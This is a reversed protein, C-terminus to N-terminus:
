KMKRRFLGLGALGALGWIGLSGGSPSPVDITDSQFDKPPSQLIRVPVVIDRDRESESFRSTTTMVRLNFEDLGHWNGNPQYSLSGDSELVTTGKSKPTVAAQELRLCGVQWASGDPAKEEGLIAACDAAPLLEGDGLSNIINMKATEGYLLDQGVRSVSNPSIVLEFAGLDCHVNAGRNLGRIDTSECSAYGEVSGDSYMRGRNVIPSDNLTKYSSLLRPKFFGIFNDKPTTFPCLLGNAPPRDCTDQESSAGAFLKQSGLYSNLNGAEGAKCTSGVLNNLSLSRDNAAYACDQKNSTLISNSIHAKGAPAHFYVGQQNDVATINNLYVGDRLNILYGEKNKLFITNTLASVRSFTDTSTTNSDFAVESYILAGNTNTAKNERFISNTISFLPQAMFIVAGTKATNNKFISRNITLLSASTETSGAVVGENYIAGGENAVGNEMKVYTLTLSERNFIIGGRDECPSTAGCGELNLRLLGVGIRSVEALQDDVTFLRHNGKPKITANLLGAKNQDESFDKEATAITMSSKILIESDLIYEKEQELFISNSANEGGCGFYGKKINEERIKKNEATENVPATLYENVYHVAERLSCEKDDAVVDQTTTVVVNSFAQGSLCLLGIGISKKLM